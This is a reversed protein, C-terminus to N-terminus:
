RRRKESRRESPPPVFEEESVAEEIHPDPPRESIKLEIQTQKEFYRLKEERAQLDLIRQVIDKKKQEVRYRELQEDLESQREDSWRRYLSSLTEIDSDSVDAATREVLRSLQSDIDSLEDSTDVKGAAKLRETLEQRAIWLSLIADMWLAELLYFV